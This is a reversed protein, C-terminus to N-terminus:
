LLDEIMQLMQAWADRDADEHFGFKGSEVPIMGPSIEYSTFAHGAGGYITVRFDAQAATMEGCFATVDTLPVFPDEAGTCLLIPTAIPGTAEPLTPKLLGHFVIAAKLQAGSRVLNLVGMGGLCYGVAAIRAPDVCPLGSLAHLGAEVRRGLCEPDSIMQNARSEAEPTYGVFLGDGYLDMVFVAYGLAALMQARHAPMPGCGPAEPVLLIGPRPREHGEAVVLCGKLATGAADEYEIPDAIM